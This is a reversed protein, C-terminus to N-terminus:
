CASILGRCRQLVEDSPKLTGLALTCVLEEGGGRGDM